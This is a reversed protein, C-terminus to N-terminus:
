YGKDLNIVTGDIANITLLPEDSLSDHAPEKPYAVNITGYFDWVPVFLGYGINNQDMIRRLSLAVRTVNGAIKIDRGEYKVRYMKKFVDAIEDFNRVNADQTVTETIEHPSVWRVSCIGRSCVDLTIDEYYWQANFGENDVNNSYYSSYDDSTVPAGNITRVLNIEIRVDTLKDNYEGNKIDEMLADRESTDVDVGDIKTNYEEPLVFKLTLTAIEMEEIEAEALFIEAMEIADQYLFEGEIEPKNSLNDPTVTEVKVYCAEEDMLDYNTFNFRAGQSATDTVLWGGMNEEVNIKGDKINNRISFAKGTYVHFGPDEVIDVGNYECSTEGTPLYVETQIKITADAPILEPSDLATEYQAELNKIEQEAQRRSEEASEPDDLIKRYHVINEDIQEKTYKEQQQYMPTDDILYDYLKDVLEQSFDAPEVRVVPLTDVDPLVIEADATLTLRGDAYSENATFREPVGLKQALKGPTEAATDTAQAKEIMQELDKQIVVPEDPTPQCGAVSVALTAIATLILIIKRM